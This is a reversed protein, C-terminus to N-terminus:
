AALTLVEEPTRPDLGMFHELLRSYFRLMRSASDGSGIALIAWRVVTWCHEHVQLAARATSVMGEPLTSGQPDRPYILGCCHQPLITVLAFKSNSFFHLWCVRACSSDACHLWPSARM